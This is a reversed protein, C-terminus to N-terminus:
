KFEEKWFDDLAKQIYASARKAQEETRFYNGIAYQINDTTYRCETVAFIYMDSGISYFKEGVKARWRDKKIEELKKTEPNWRKGQKALADWLRQAEELTAHRFILHPHRCCENMKIAGTSTYICFYTYPNIEGIIKEKLIFVWNFGDTDECYIVDGRKFEVEVTTVLQTGVQEVTIAKCGDPIQFTQKNM